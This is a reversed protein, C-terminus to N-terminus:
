NKVFDIKIKIFSKALDEGTGELFLQFDLMENREIKKNVVTIVVDGEEGPQLIDPEMRFDLCDPLEKAVIKIPVKSSNGCWIRETFLSHSPDVTFNVVRRKLRLNGMKFPLHRWPDEDKVEGLINLCAIPYKESDVTYVYIREDVTGIKNKPNYMVMIEGVSDPEIMQKDYAVATCGCFTRVERIKTAKNGVNRFSFRLSKPSDYESMVGISQTHTEFSLIKEGDDMVVPNMISDAVSRSVLQITQAQVSSMGFLGVGLCLNIWFINRIM